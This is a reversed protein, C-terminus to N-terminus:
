MAMQAMLMALEEEDEDRAPAPPAAVAMGMGLAATPAPTPTAAKAAKEQALAQKNEALLKQGHAKMQAQEPSGEAAAQTDAVIVTLVFAMVDM